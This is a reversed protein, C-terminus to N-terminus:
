LFCFWVSLLYALSYHFLLLVASLPAPVIHSV